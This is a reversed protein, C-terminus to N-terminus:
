LLSLRTCHRHGAACDSLGQEVAQASRRSRGAAGSGYRTGTTREGRSTSRTTGEGRGTGRTAEAAEARGLAHGVETVSEAGAGGATEGTTRASHGTTRTAGAAAATAALSTLHVPHHVLHLSHLLHLLTSHGTSHRGADVRHLHHATGQELAFGSRSFLAAEGSTARQMQPDFPTTPAASMALPAQPPSTCQGRCVRLGQSQACLLYCATSGPWTQRSLRFSGRFLGGDIPSVVKDRESSLRAFEIELSIFRVALLLAPGAINVGRM